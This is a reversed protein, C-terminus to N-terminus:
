NSCAQEKMLKLQPNIFRRLHDPLVALYLRTGFKRKLDQSYELFSRATIHGTLASSMVDERRINRWYFPDYYQEETFGCNRVFRAMKPTLTEFESGDSEVRRHSQRRVMKGKGMYFMCQGYQLPQSWASSDASYPKFGSLMKMKAYGFWHGRGGANRCWDVKAKVYSAPCPGGPVRMLGGFAVWGRPAVAVLEKMKEEDDGFIHVPVPELGAKHMRKLNRASGEASGIVDLAAYAFLHEKWNNVWAIYDDLNIPEGLNAASFAGCDLFLEINENTIIKAQVEEPVKRMYHYSILIPQRGMNGHREYDKDTYKPM